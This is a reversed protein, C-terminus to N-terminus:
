RSSKTQVDLRQMVRLLAALDAPRGISVRVYRGYRTTLVVPMKVTAKLLASSIRDNKAAILVFNTESVFAKFNHLANVARIFSERRAIVHRVAKARYKESRLAAIGLAEHLRSLGLDRNVDRLWHRVNRGGLVYGLRLGALGYDKSFTRMLGLNPYRKVMRLYFKADYGRQFGIYAEDLLVLTNTPVAKMITRFEEPAIVHGTPNNPSTLILVRPRVNRLQRLCDDIDFSFEEVGHNLKFTRIRVGKETAIQDYYLYHLENTLVVDRRRDLGTFLFRLFDELGYTLMVQEARLGFRKALVGALRSSGHGEIYHNLQDSPFRRLARIVAPSPGASLENRNLM